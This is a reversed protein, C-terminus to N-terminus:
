DDSPRSNCYAERQHTWWWWDKAVVLHTQRSTRGKKWPMICSFPIVILDKMSRYNTLGNFSAFHSHFHPTAKNIKERLSLRDTLFYTSSPWITLWWKGHLSLRCNTEHLEPSSAPKVKSHIPDLWLKEVLWRGHSDKYRRPHLEEHNTATVKKWCQQWQLAKCKLPFSSLPVKEKEQDSQFRFVTNCHTSM